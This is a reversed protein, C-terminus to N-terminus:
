NEDSWKGQIPDFTVGEKELAELCAITSDYIPFPNPNDEADLEVGGSGCLFTYEEYDDEIKQKLVWVQIPLWNSNM